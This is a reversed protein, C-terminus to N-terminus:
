FSWSCFIHLWKLMKGQKILININNCTHGVDTAGILNWLDGRRVVKIDDQVSMEDIILGRLGSKSIKQRQAEKYM